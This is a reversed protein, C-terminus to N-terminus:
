GAYFSRLDTAFVIRGDLQAAYLTQGGVCDRAFYAQRGTGDWVVAAWLGNIDRFCPAGHRVYASLVATSFNEPHLDSERSGFFQGFVVGQIDGVNPVQFRYSGPRTRVEHMHQYTLVTLDDSRWEYRTTWPTMRFGADLWSEDFIERGRPETYIVGAMGFTVPTISTGAM